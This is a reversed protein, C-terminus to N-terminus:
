HPIHHGLVFAYIHEAGECTKLASSLRAILLGSAKAEEQTQEALGPIHRKPEVILWGMYSTPGDEPIHHSAFVLDDEYITGGPLAVKGRHKQCVFCEEQQEPVHM